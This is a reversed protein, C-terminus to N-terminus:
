ATLHDKVLSVAEDVLAAAKTFEPNRFTPKKAGPDTAGLTHLHNKFNVGQRELTEINQMTNADLQKPAAAEKAEAPTKVAKVSKATAKKATSPKKSVSKVSKPM